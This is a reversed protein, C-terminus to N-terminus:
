RGSVGGELAAKLRSLSTPVELRARGRLLAELPAAFWRPREDVSMRFRTGGPVATFEYEGDGRVLAGSFRSRVLREPQLEVVVWRMKFGVGALRRRQTVETGRRFVGAPNSVSARVTPQWRVDNAADTVFRFVEAPSRLIEIAGDLRTAM